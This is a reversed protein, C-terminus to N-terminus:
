GEEAEGSISADQRGPSERMSEKLAKVSELLTEALLEAAHGNLIIGMEMERVLGEKGERSIEEGLHGDPSINMEIIKPIAARENYVSIFIQRSPTLGGIAGDAHVVRFFNSKIFYFKVSSPITTDPM